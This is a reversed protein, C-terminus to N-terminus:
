AEEVDLEDEGAGEDAAELAAGGSGHAHSPPVTTERCCSAM